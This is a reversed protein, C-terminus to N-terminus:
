DMCSNHSPYKEPMLLYIFSSNGLVQGRLLKKKLQLHMTAELVDQHVKIHLFALTKPMMYM